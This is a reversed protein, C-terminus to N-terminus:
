FKMLPSFVTNESAPNLTLSYIDWHIKMTIRAHLADCSELFIFHIMVSGVSFLWRPSKQTESSDKISLGRLTEYSYSFSISPHIKWGPQGTEKPQNIHLASALKSRPSASHAGGYVEMLIHERCSWYVLCTPLSNLDTSLMGAAKSALKGANQIASFLLTPKRPFWNFFISFHLKACVKFPTTKSNEEGSFTIKGEKAKWQLKFYLGCTCPHKTKWALRQLLTHYYNEIIIEM